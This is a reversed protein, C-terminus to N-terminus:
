GEPAIKGAGYAGGTANVFARGPAERAASAHALCM